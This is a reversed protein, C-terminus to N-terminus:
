CDAFNDYDFQGQSELLKLARRHLHVLNRQSVSVFCRLLFGIKDGLYHVLCKLECALADFALKLGTFLQCIKIKFM